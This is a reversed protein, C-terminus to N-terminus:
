VASYFIVNGGEDALLDESMVRPSVLHSLDAFRNENNVTNVLWDPVIEVFNGLSIKYL